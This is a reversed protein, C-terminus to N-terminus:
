RRMGMAANFQQNETGVGPTGPRRGNSQAQQQAQAAAQQQAAAFERENMVLEEPAKLNFTQVTRKLLGPWKIAQAAIPNQAVIQLFQMLQQIDYQRSATNQAGLFKVKYEGLLTNNDPEGSDWKFQKISELFFELCSELGRNALHKAVDMSRANGGMQVQSVEYATKRGGEFQGADMRSAGTSREGRQRLIEIEQFALAVNNNPAMSQLNDMQGVEIGVGPRLFLTEPDIIGDDVYKMVGMIILNLIDAKQCSFTNILLQTGRVPELPGKGLPTFWVDEYTDWVIPRGAWYPNRKMEVLVKRNIIAVQQDEFREGDVELDGHLMILEFEDTDGKTEAKRGHTDQTSLQPQVGFLRARMDKQTDSPEMPMASDEIEALVDDKLNPFWQKVQALRLKPMRRLIPTEALGMVEPNFVVDYADMPLVDPGDYAKQREDITKIVTKGSGTNVHETRRRRARTQRTWHLLLPANGIVCLQKFHPTLKEIFKMQYLQTDLYAKMVPVGQRGKTDLGEIEYFDENMPFLSNRLTSALTDATEQSFSDAVNCRWPWADYKTPDVHVLYNGLCEDWIREKDARALKWDEWLGTVAQVVKEPDVDAV